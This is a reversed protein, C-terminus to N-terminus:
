YLEIEDQNEDHYKHSNNSNIHGNKENQVVRKSKRDNLLEREAFVCSRSHKLGQVNDESIHSFM